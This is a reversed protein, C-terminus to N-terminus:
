DNVLVKNKYLELFEEIIIENRRVPRNVCAELLTYVDESIRYSCYNSKKFLFADKM